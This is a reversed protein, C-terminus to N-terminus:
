EAFGAYHFEVRCIASKLSCPVALEGDLVSNNKIKRKKM